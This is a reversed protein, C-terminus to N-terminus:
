LNEELHIYTIVDDQIQPTGQTDFTIIADRFVPSIERKVKWINGDCTYVTTGCVKASIKREQPKACVAVATITLISICMMVTITNFIKTKM